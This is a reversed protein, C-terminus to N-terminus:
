KSDIAEWFAAVAAELRAREVTTFDMKSQM